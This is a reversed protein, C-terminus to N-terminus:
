CFCYFRSMFIMQAFVVYVEVGGILEFELVKAYFGLVLGFHFNHSGFFEFFYKMSV